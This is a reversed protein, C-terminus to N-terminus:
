QVHGDARDSRVSPFLSVSKEFLNRKLLFELQNVFFMFDKRFITEDFNLSISRLQERLESGSNIYKAVEEACEDIDSYQFETPLFEPISGSRHALALCGAALAEVVTIGFTENVALNVYVSSKSLIEMKVQEEVFGLYELAIGSSKLVHLAKKGAQDLKGTIILKINKPLHKAMQPLLSIGTIAQPRTVYVYPKRKTHLDIRLYKTVPVPPYLVTSELGYIEKVIGKTFVSNSLHLPILRKACLWLPSLKDNEQMRYGIM